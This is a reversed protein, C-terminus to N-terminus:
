VREKPRRKRGFPPEAVRSAPRAPLSYVIGDLLVNPQRTAIELLRNVSGSPPFKGHEWAKATEPSVNLAQAFVVQSLRLRKRLAAIQRATFTPAPPIRASRASIPARKFVAGVVRGREFAVAHQLGAVIEAGIDRTQANRSTKRRPTRTIKKM